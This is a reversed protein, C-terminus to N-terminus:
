GTRLFSTVIAPEEIWVVDLEKVEVEAGLVEAVNPKTRGGDGHILEKVYLGGQCTITLELTNSNLLKAKVSYVVKKRVKDPKRGLIRLPTRQIVIAGNFTKELSEIEGEGISRSLKVIAVYTKRAIEAYAKLKPVLKGSVLHVLEVEILGKAENNVADRALKLDLSRVKPNRIEVVFPRGNGLTRVDVDERGAAHLKAESAKALRALPKTILEEVSTPYMLRPDPPRLWPSQPLGRVLKRYRGYIYIPRSHVSVSWAGVDIVFVVDPDERSYRKGTATEILKGVERTIDSKISEPTNLQFTLWLKEERNSMEKPVKCGVQFTRYEFEKGADMCMAALESLREMVGSCIYCARREPENVRLKKLLEEAPKFGTRALCAVTKEDTLGHVADYAEMLFLTKLARGREANSLGYGAMGFLRGLCSDCLTYEALVRRAKELLDKSIAV